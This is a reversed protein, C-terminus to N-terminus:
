YAVIGIVGVFQIALKASVSNFQDGWVAHISFIRGLVRTAQSPIASTPLNFPTQTAVFNGCTPQENRVSRQFSEQFAGSLSSTSRASANILRTTSQRGHFSSARGSAALGSYTEIRGIWCHGHELSAIPFGAHDINKPGVFRNSVLLTARANDVDAFRLSSSPPRSPGSCRFCHPRQRKYVDLHTYSVPSAADSRLGRRLGHTFRGM